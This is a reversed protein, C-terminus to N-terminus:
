GVSVLLGPQARLVSVKYPNVFPISRGLYCTSMISYNKGRGQTSVRSHCVACAAIIAAARSQGAEWSMLRFLVPRLLRRSECRFKSESVSNQMCHFSTSLSKCSPHCSHPARSAMRLPVQPHLIDGSRPGLKISFVWDLPNYLQM